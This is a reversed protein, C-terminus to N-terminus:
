DNKTRLWENLAREDQFTITSGAVEYGDKEGQLYEAVLLQQTPTMHSIEEFTWGFTKALTVYV